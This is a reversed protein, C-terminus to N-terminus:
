FPIQFCAENQGEERAEEDKEGVGIVALAFGADAAADGGIKLESEVALRGAEGVKAAVDHDQIEPGGPTWGAHVFSRGEISELAVDSREAGGNEADAHIVVL